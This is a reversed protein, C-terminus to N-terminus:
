TGFLSRWLRKWWPCNSEVVRRELLAIEEIARNHERWAVSLQANADREISMEFSPLISSGSLGRNALDGALNMKELEVTAQIEAELDELREALVERKLRLLDLEITALEARKLEAISEGAFKVFAGTLKTAVSPEM